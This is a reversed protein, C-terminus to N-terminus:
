GSMQRGQPDERTRTRRDAQDLLLFATDIAQQGEDAWVSPPIGTRIAM